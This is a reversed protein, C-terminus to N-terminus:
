PPLPLPLPSGPTTGLVGRLAVGLWRAGDGVGLRDVVALLVAGVGLISPPLPPPEAPGFFPPKLSNPLLFFVGVEGAGDAADIGTWSSSLM